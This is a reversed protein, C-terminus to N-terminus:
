RLVSELSELDPPARLVGDGCGGERGDGVRVRCSCCCALSLAGNSDDICELGGRYPLWKASPTGIISGVYGIVPLSRDAADVQRSNRM